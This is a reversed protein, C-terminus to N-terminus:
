WEFSLVRPPQVSQDQVYIRYVKREGQPEIIWISHCSSGDALRDTATGQQIGTLDLSGLVGALSASQSSDSSSSRLSLLKSVQNLDLPPCLALRLTSESARRWNIRGDGWCTIRDAGSALGYRSDILDQPRVADFVTGLSGLAVEIAPAPTLPKPTSRQNALLESGRSAGATPATTPLTTPSNFTGPRLRIKGALGTGSLLLRLSIEADSKGLRRMLSQANIKAQEDAFLLQIDIGGLNVTSSCSVAPVRTRKEKAALVAEALPLLTKECSIAAWRAQLSRQAEEAALAQRLSLRCASAMAASVLLLLLLSTLLVYGRHRALGHM